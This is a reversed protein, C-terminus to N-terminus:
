ENEIYLEPDKFIQMNLKDKKMKYSNHSYDNSKEIGTNIMYHTITNNHHNMLDAFPILFTSPMSWGYCRTM